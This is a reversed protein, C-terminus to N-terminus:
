RGSSEVDSEEDDDDDDDSMVFIRTWIVPGSGNSDPINRSSTFIVLRYGNSGGRHRKRVGM